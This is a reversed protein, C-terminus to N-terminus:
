WWGPGNDRLRPVKVEQFGTPVELRYHSRNVKSRGLPKCVDWWNTEKINQKWWQCLTWKNCLINQFSYAEIATQAYTRNLCFFQFIQDRHWHSLTKHIDAQQQCCRVFHCYLEIMLYVRSPHEIQCSRRVLRLAFKHTRICRSEFLHVWNRVGINGSSFVNYSHGVYWQFSSIMHKWISDSSTEGVTCGQLLM